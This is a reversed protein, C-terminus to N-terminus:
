SGTTPIIFPDVRVLRFGVEIEIPASTSPDASNENFINYFKMKMGINGIYNLNQEIIIRMIILSIEIQMTENAMNLEKM